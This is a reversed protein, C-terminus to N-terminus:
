KLSIMDQCAPCQNEEFVKKWDVPLMPDRLGAGYKHRVLMRYIDDVAKEQALMIYEKKFHDIIERETKDYEPM